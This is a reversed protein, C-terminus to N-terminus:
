HPLWIIKGQDCDPSMFSSSFASTDFLARSIVMHFTHLCTPVFPLLFCLSPVALLLALSLPKSCDWFPSCRLKLDRPFKFAVSIWNRINLPKIQSSASASNQQTPGM